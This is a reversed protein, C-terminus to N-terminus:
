LEEEWEGNVIMKHKSRNTSHRENERFSSGLEDGRPDISYKGDEGNVAWTEFHM